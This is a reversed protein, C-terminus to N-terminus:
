VLILYSIRPNSAQKIAVPLVELTFGNAKDLGHHRIVDLEWNVTGFKLVAIRLVPEGALAAASLMALALGAIAASRFITAFM